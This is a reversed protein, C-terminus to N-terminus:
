MYVILPASLPYRKLWLLAERASGGFRADNEIEDEIM